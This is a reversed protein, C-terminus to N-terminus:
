GALPTERGGSCCCCAPLLPSLASRLPMFCMIVQAIGKEKLHLILSPAPLLGPSGEGEKGEEEGM